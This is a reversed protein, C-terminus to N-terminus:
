AALNKEYEVADEVAKQSVDYWRAVRAVSGEAGFARAVISTPVGEPNLTPQGFAIAPDIVIRKSATPFWRVPHMRKETFELGEYLFPAVVTSINYQLKVLELIKKGGSKEAFEAFIRKGDTRFMRTSFPHTSGVIEAADAAARRLMTWSVGQRLFYDVFRAEILDNFSLALTDRLIPLDGLWVPPSAHQDKGVQFKYGCLWRRIRGASLRTMRAAEPVTYIGVGLLSTVVAPLPKAPPLLAYSM